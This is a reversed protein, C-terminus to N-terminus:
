DIILLLVAFHNIWELVLHQWKSHKAMNGVYLCAYPEQRVPLVGTLRRQPVPVFTDKSNVRTDSMIWLIVYSSIAPYGSTFLIQPKLREDYCLNFRCRQLLLLM